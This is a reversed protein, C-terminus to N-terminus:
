DEKKKAAKKTPKKASKEEAAVADAEAAEAEKAEKAPAEAEAEEAADAKEEAGGEEEDFWHKRAAMILEDIEEDSKGSDPLLEKFEDRALDALDDLTKIGKEGLAVMLEDDIGPMEEIETEVGLTHWRENLEKKHEELYESAREKLAEALDKDFGEIGELEETPVLVLDEVKRFGETVLLHAIVDEVNLAEIFIQSVTNFEEVRRKSEEDETLVDINWGVIQSALRVNQGRRGIALSLQGEPVVVEIRQNDEDIVIKSVEAPALASVVLTAPDASWEIIDIKEGQLEYVVAQVRSGRLGVCSGVPDINSDNSKVAIKARSGPDRAVAMIEIIGDYIEPVEQTFLQALFQPHTRSLFIQPGKLESRVDEIYARIRDNPRFVERPITRERYMMTETNGLDVAVNGYEIRKVVGNVIEGVRDKYEEFQKEREAERVKQIIIQKATQAIVRGFEIPPLEESVTDGLAADKKNKKADDLSIETGPAEVAEVVERERFMKIAGTKRDIHSVIHQEHGYKKRGAIQIAQEMAEVVAENPIGKERAVADAVQLIESNGTIAFNSEM